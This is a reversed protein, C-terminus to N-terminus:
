IARNRQRHCGAIALLGMGFMVLSAPEPVAQAGINMTFSDANAGTGWTWIYTGPTLGLSQFSQGAWTDTTTLLTGSVYIEPLFIATPYDGGPIGVFDGSGSTAQAIAGPVPGSGFNAPGSINTYGSLTAASLNTPGFLASGKDAVLFSYGGGFVFSLALDTTNITGGGIAIVDDGSETVNVVFGARAPGALISALLLGLLAAAVLRSRDSLM